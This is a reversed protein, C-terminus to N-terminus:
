SRRHLTEYPAFTPLHLPAFTRLNSPSALRLRYNPFTHLHSRAFTPFNSPSNRTSRAPSPPSAAVSCRPRSGYVKPSGPELYAVEPALWLMSRVEGSSRRAITLFRQFEKASDCEFGEAINNSVSIAASRIQSVFAHDRESASGPGSLRYITVAFDRAAQWIELDEFRRALAM